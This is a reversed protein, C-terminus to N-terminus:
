LLGNFVDVQYAEIIDLDEMSYHSCMKMTVNTKDNAYVFILLIIEIFGVVILSYLLTFGRVQKKMWTHFKIFLVRYIAIYSSWVCSGGIYGVNVLHAMKCFQIGLLSSVPQPYIFFITRFLITAALLLSNIQDLMILHNIAGVKSEPSLLYSIITSRLRLGYVLTIMYSIALIIRFTQSQNLPFPLGDKAEYLSMNLILQCQRDSVNEYTFFLEM